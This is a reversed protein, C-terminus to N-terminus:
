HASEIVGWEAACNLLRSLVALTDNITGPDFKQM